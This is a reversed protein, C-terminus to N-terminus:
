FTLRVGLALGGDPAPRVTLRELHVPAWTATKTESGVITGLLLGAFGLVAVRTDLHPSVEYALCPLTLCNGNEDLWDPSAVLALLAGGVLGVGAGELTMRRQRRVDIRRVSDAPLILALGEADGDVRVVLTDSEWSVLTGTLRGGLSPADFRIRTGPDLRPM